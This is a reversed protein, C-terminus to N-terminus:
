DVVYVTVTVAVDPESCCDVVNESVTFQRM